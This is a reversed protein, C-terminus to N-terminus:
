ITKASFAVLTFTDNAYIAVNSSPVILDIQLVSFVFRDSKILNSSCSSLLSKHTNNQLSQDENGILDLHPSYLIRDM